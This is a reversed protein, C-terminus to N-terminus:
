TRPADRFLGKMTEQLKDSEDPSPPEYIYRWHEELQRLKAELLSALAPDSFDSASTIRRFLRAVRLGWQLEPRHRQLTEESAQERIIEKYGRQIIDDCRQCFDRIDNILLREVSSSPPAGATTQTAEASGMCVFYM